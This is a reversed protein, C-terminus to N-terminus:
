DDSAGGDDRRVRILIKDRHCIRSLVNGNSYTIVEVTPDGQYEILSSGDTSPVLTQPPFTVAFTQGKRAGALFRGLWTGPVVSLTFSGDPNSSYTFEYTVDYSGASPSAVYVGRAAVTGSGDPRFTTTGSVNYTQTSAVGDNPLLAANFGAQAVLCSVPGTSFYRGKLEGADVSAAAVLSLTMSCAILGHIARM